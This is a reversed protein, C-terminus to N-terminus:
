LAALLNAGNPSGLGTCADWGPGAKYGKGPPYARNDGVTIDRFVHAGAAMRYLKPTLFGVSAGKGQNLIAILAAWLPAVASTGGASSDQGDVRVRYGTDGDADGCVDPVGRGKPAGANLSPPIAVHAQYPPVPFVESVGGGTAWGDGNNWATESAISGNKAILSSGGCALVYPSSAPFDANARTQGQEDQAGHDGASCCVTVGLTAAEQCATNFAALAQKTWGREASGWSISVVSPKRLPDHVASKLANLFGADTNPAFYVAIKAKPAVAGAVEIDLMVEGDPGNPNGTPANHGGSVSVATVAPKAVGINAFYKKLDATKYGGGLEVIAICQGSGDLHAPFNYLKAVEVPSFPRAGTALPVVGRKPKQLYFHPRAHPRDDLGFVGEVLPAIEAPVTIGGQRGRFRVKGMQYTALSVGFAASMDVVTGSLRVTRQTENVEVVSMGHADAFAEIKAVDQPDAGYRAGFEERSLTASGPASLQELSPLAARARLLLTVEFREDPKAKGVRKAGKPLTKESGPVLRGAVKKSKPM